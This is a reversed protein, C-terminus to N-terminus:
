TTIDNNDSIKYDEENKKYHFSKYIEQFKRWLTLTDPRKLPDADWCQVMLKKYELPTGSVINPRMGN